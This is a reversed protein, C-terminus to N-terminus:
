KIIITRVQWVSRAHYIEVRLEPDSDYPYIIFLPGKDVISMYKGNLKYALIPNFRETDSVPLQASYDNLAVVRMAEGQSGAVQLLDKLLVGEFRMEGDHWPTHTKIEHTGLKELDSLRFHKQSGGSVKGEITLIIDQATAVGVAGFVLGLALAVKMAFGSFVSM